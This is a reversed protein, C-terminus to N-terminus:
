QEWLKSFGEMAWLGAKSEQANERLENLTDAYRVNPIYTKNMAYGNAVLIGNLMYNAVDQKNNVDVDGKIWVYALTRGYQDMAETDYQLYVIDYSKLLEKTYASALDGYSSNKSEDPNVSEPTDIGIFRVKVEERDKRIIITDGDLARVFEVPELVDPNTTILESASVGKQAEALTSSGNTVATSVVSGLSNRVEPSMATTLASSGTAVVTNVASGLADQVEPTTALDTVVDKAAQTSSNFLQMNILGANKMYIFVTLAGICAFVKTALKGM